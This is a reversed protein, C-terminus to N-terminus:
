NFNTIVMKNCLEFTSTNQIAVKTKHYSKMAFKNAKVIKLVM